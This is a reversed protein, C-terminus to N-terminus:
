DLDKCFKVTIVLFAEGDNNTDNLQYEIKSDSKRAIDIFGLGAGKSGDAQPMRRQEKYYEKLEIESMKNVNEIKDVVKKGLSTPVMNGSTIYFEKDNESFLIIGVGVDKAEKISFETEASYHMINQALEVFVAFIKKISKHINFQNRIISGIEVLIEQSVAGKFTLIINNRKNNNYYEFLDFSLM